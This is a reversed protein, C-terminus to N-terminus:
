SPSRDATQPTQLQPNTDEISSAEVLPQSAAARASKALVGVPDPYLRSSPVRLFRTLVAYRRHTWPWQTVNKGSKTMYFSNCNGAFAEVKGLARRLLREYRTSWSRKVEIHASRNKGLRRVDEAIFEAQRELVYSVITGHTNPGYLMYFNPFNPITLGLFAEPEGNWQDHLRTGGIGVLDFTSLYNTAQFGTAMVIVDVPHEEGAGDIVGTPTVEVVSQKVVRANPQALSQLFVDSLVVRKCRVPYDPTLKEILEERGGVAEAIYAASVARANLAAKGEVNKGTKLTSDALKIISRREEQQKKHSDLEAAEVANFERSGKPLVWAPERQFSVLQSARPVLAPVIQAASAGAGVVAVRKGDVDVDSNWTSSHLITGEFSEVGSMRVENPVNLMGVASVVVDFEHAAGDSTTVTYTSTAEDWVAREVATGLRLKDRFGFADVTGSLYQQIQEQTGHTRQWQVVRFSYSYAASPVDCEAGPYRNNWWTGGPGDSKEFITFSNIGRKTLNVAAGIGGMGAGIIAVRPTASGGYRDQDGVSM